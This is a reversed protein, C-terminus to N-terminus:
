ENVQHLRSITQEYYKKLPLAHKPVETSGFRILDLCHFLEEVALLHKNLFKKKQALVRLSFEAVMDASRLTKCPRPSGEDLKALYFNAIHDDTEISFFPQDSLREFTIGCVESMVKIGALRTPDSSLTMDLTGGPFKIFFDEWRLGGGKKNPDEMVVLAKMKGEKDIKLIIGFGAYTRGTKKEM